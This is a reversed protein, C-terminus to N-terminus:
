GIRVASISSDRQMGTDNWRMSANVSNNNSLSIRLNGAPNTIIGAISLLVFNGAPVLGAGSAIVTAGDWLKIILTDATTSVVSVSGGVRWTGVTGCNITPGDYFTSIVSMAVNGTLAGSVNQLQPIYAEITVGLARLASKLPSNAGSSPVGDTVYDRFATSFASAITGM